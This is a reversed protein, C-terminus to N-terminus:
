RSRAESDTTSEQNYDDIMRLFAAEFEKNVYKGMKFGDSFQNRLGYQNNDYNEKVRPNDGIYNLLNIQVVNTPNKKDKLVLLQFNDQIYNVLNARDEFFVDALEQNIKGTTRSYLKYVNIPGEAVQELTMRKPIMKIAKGTLDAYWVTKFERGDELSFGEFHKPEMKQKMKGKMKGTKMYKDFDKPEMYTIGQQFRQPFEFDIEIYVEKAKGKNLHLVGKHFNGQAFTAVAIFFFLLGLIARYKTM